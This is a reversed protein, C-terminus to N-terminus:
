GIFPCPLQSTALAFFVTVRDQPWSTIVFRVLGLLSSLRAAVGHPGHRLPSAGAGGLSM